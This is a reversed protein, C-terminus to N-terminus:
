AAQAQATWSTGDTEPIWPEGPLASTDLWGRASAVAAAVQVFRRVPEPASRRWVLNWAYYAQLPLAGVLPCPADLRVGRSRLTVYAHAGARRMAYAETGSGTAVPVRRITVGAAREYAGVFAGFDDAAAPDHAVAVTRCRLDVPRDIAPDRGIVGVMLPDLRILQSRLAPDEAAALPGRCFAVDLRGDRLAALQDSPGLTTERVPIGPAGMALADLLVAVTDTFPLHAVRLTDHAAALDESLAGLSALVERAAPLLITGSPTLAVTRTTRTFLQRGLVRELQMISRSLAPQAVFLRDAARGFHLEEGLTVFCRLLRPSVDILSQPAPRRTPALPTVTM